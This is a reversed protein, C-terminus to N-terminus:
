FVWVIVWLIGTWAVWVQELFFLIFSKSFNQRALIDTWPKTLKKTVHLNISDPIAPPGCGTSQGRTNIWYM